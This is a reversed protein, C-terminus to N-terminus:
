APSRAPGRRWRPPVASAALADRAGRSRLFAEALLLNPVWCLWAIAPYAIAFSIGAFQSAPLYIRLTVAALTLAYSRVMWDRHAALRRRRIAAVALATTALWALGLSAFGAAAVGGSTTRLALVLAAIGGAAVALVYARGLWRHLGLWRNRLRAHLQFAGVVLATGGGAFHGWTALPQQAFLGRVLPHRWEPVGAMAFAYGAVLVALVTMAYWGLGKWRM